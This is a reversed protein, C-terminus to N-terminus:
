MKIESASHGEQEDEEEETSKLKLLFVNLFSMKTLPSIEM